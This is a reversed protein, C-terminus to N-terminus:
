SGVHIVLLCGREAWKKGSTAKDKMLGHQWDTNPCLSPRPREAIFLLAKTLLLPNALLFFPSAFSLFFFAFLLSFPPPRKKKSQNAKLQNGTQLLFCSSATPLSGILFFFPFPEKITKTQIKKKKKATEKEEIQYLIYYTSTLHLQTWWKPLTRKMLRIKKIIIIKYNKKNKNILISIM